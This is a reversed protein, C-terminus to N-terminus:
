RRIAMKRWIVIALATLAASIAVSQLLMRRTDGKRFPMESAGLFDFLNIAVVCWGLAAALMLLGLATKM